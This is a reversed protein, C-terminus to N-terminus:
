PGSDKRVLDHLKALGILLTLQQLSSDTNHPSLKYGHDLSDSYYDSPDLGCANGPVSINIWKPQRCWARFYHASQPFRKDRWMHADAQMMAEQVELLLNDDPIKSLWKAVSPTLTVGIAGGYIDAEVRLYEIVMLQPLSSKTDGDFLWLVQFLVSLTSRLTCVDSREDQMELDSEKEERLVPLSCEYVLWAPDQSETRILIGGFGWCEDSSEIFPKLKYVELFDKVVPAQAFSYTKLYEMAVIHIRIVLTKADKVGIEYWAPLTQRAPDPRM